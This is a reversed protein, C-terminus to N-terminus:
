HHCTSCSVLRSTKQPSQKRHCHLCFGMNIRYAPRAVTKQGVDGHCSECNVGATVHPQHTFYVFDPQDHTKEWRLPIGEEWHRMLIDVGAQGSNAVTVEGEGSTVQINQHCGVCKALSPLTAVPGDLVGPHCFICQAGAAVHKQHNFRITEDAPSKAIAVDALLGDGARGQLIIFVLVSLLLLLLAFIMRQRLRRQACRARQIQSM